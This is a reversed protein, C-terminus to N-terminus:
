DTKFPLSTHSELLKIKEYDNIKAKRAYNMIKSKEQNTVVNEEINKKFAKFTKLEFIEKCKEETLILQVRNEAKCDFGLHERLAPNHIYVRSHSGIRDSGVFFTNGNQVQTEIEMNTIYVVNRAKLFEDGQSTKQEWSINWDCLNEVKSRENWNIPTPQTSQEIPLTTQNTEKTTEKIIEKEKNAM